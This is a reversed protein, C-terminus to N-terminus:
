SWSAPWVANQLTGTNLDLSRLTLGGEEPIAIAIRSFIATHRATKKWEEYHASLASEVSQADPTSTPPVLAWTATAVESNLDRSFRNLSTELSGRLRERAAVSVEGIWRYQLFGLAGCLVFLALVFLRSLLARRRNKEPSPYSINAPMYARWVGHAPEVGGSM